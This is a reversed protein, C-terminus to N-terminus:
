CSMPLDVNEIPFVDEVPPHEMTMNTKPPYGTKGRFICLKVSKTSEHQPHLDDNIRCPLMNAFGM